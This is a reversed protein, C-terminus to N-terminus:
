LKCPVTGTPALMSGSVPANVQVGVASWTPECLRVRRTVSLPLGVSKASCTTLTVTSAIGFWAGTSVAMPLWVILSCRGKVKVAVALSASAPCVSVNLRALPVLPAMGAPAVILGVVPTNVHVGISAWPGPVNVNSTTTVSLPLATSVSRSVSVTVTVSALAAGTNSRPETGIPCTSLGNVGTPGTPLSIESIASRTGGVPPASLTLSLSAPATVPIAIERDAPRGSQYESSLPVVQTPNEGLALLTRNSAASALVRSNTEGGEMSKAPLRRFSNVNWAHSRVTPDLPPTIVVPVSVPVPGVPAKELLKAWAVTM